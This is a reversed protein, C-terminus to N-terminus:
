LPPASGRTVHVRLIGEPPEVRLGERCPSPSPLLPPGRCRVAPSLPIPPGRLGPGSARSHRYSRPLIRDSSPLSSRHPTSLQPFPPFPPNTQRRREHKKSPLLSPRPPHLSPLRQTTKTRWLVHPSACRSPEVICLANDVQQKVPKAQHVNCLGICDYVKLSGLANAMGKSQQNCPPENCHHQQSPHCHSVRDTLLRLSKAKRQM